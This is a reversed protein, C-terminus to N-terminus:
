ASFNTYAHTRVYTFVTGSLRLKVISHSHSTESAIDCALTLRSHSRAISQGCTLRFKRAKFSSFAQSYECVFARTSAISSTLVLLRVRSYEWDSADSVIKTPTDHLRILLSQQVRPISIWPFGQTEVGRWWPTRTPSHEVLIQFVQTWIVCLGLTKKGWKNAHALNKHWMDQLYRASITCTGQVPSVRIDQLSSACLDQVNRVHALDQLM